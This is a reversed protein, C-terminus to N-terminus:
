QQEITRFEQLLRKRRIEQETTKQINFNYVILNKKLGNIGKLPIEM